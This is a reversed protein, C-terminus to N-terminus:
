PNVRVWGTTAAVKWSAPGTRVTLVAKVDAFGNKAADISAQNNAPFNEYFYGSQLNGYYPIPFLMAYSQLQDDVYWGLPYAGGSSNVLITVEYEESEVGWANAYCSFVLSGNELYYSAETIEVYETPPDEARVVGLCAVAFSLALLCKRM